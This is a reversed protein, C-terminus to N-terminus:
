ELKGVKHKLFVSIHTQIIIFYKYGYLIGRLSDNERERDEPVVGPSVLINKATYFHQLIFNQFPVTSNSKVNFVVKTFSVNRGSHIKPSKKVFMTSTRTRYTYIGSSTQGGPSMPATRTIHKFERQVTTSHFPLTQLVGVIM